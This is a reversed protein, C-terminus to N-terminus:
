RFGRGSTPVHVLPRADSPARKSPTIAAAAGQDPFAGPQALDAILADVTERSV